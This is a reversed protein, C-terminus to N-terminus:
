AGARTQFLAPLHQGDVDRLSTAIIVTVPGTVSGSYTVTATRSDADYATVAALSDGNSSILKIANKLSSVDLDSDFSVQVTLADQTVTTNVDVVHPGAIQDHLSSVDLSTVVYSGASADPALALTEDATEPTNHKSTPDVILEVRATVTGNANSAASIIYARTLGAPTTGSAGAGSGLADLVTEDGRVQADVFAHLTTNAAAPIRSAAQSSASAGPIRAVEVSPGLQTTAVFAVRDGKPSFAIDAAAPGVAVPTGSPLQAVVLQSAGSHPHVVYAAEEGHASLAVHSLDASPDLTSVTLLAASDVPETELRPPSQSHDVWAVTAGDGSFAVDTASGSLARSKGTSVDLLRGGGGAEQPPALYAFRGGPALTTLTGTSGTATSLTRSVGSLDVARVSSTGDAYVITSNSSWALAAIPSSSKILTAPQTGDAFSLVLDSGGQSGAVAAALLDSNPSFAAATAAEGLVFPRGGAAPYEVISPSSNLTPAAQASANPSGAPSPTGTAPASPSTTAPIANISVVSGDPAFLLSSGSAVQGLATVALTPASGTATSRPPTSATGFAIHVPAAATAGSQARVSQQDISVTYPTNGTLHHLPTISLDNGSWSYTVQTAPQIRVGSEVTQQDMPQNFAITIVDDPSVAHQAAVNALATITTQHDGGPNHVLALITAAIAVVGVATGGWAVHVPRPLWFARRARTRVAEAMLSARLRNRYRPDPEPQPRAEHLLRATEMLEPDGRFLENLEPDFWGTLWSPPVDHGGPSRGNRRGRGAM